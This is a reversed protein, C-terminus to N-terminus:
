MLLYMLAFILSSDAKDEVLILLLILLMSRESDKTLIDLMGGEPHQPAPPAHHQPKPPNIPMQESHPNPSQVQGRPIPEQPHYTVPIQARAQMERARRIAEQQLNQMNQREANVNEAM